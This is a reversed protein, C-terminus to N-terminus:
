QEIIAQFGKNTAYFRSPEKKFEKFVVSDNIKIGPLFLIGDETPAYGSGLATYYKSNFLHPQKNQVFVSYRKQTDTHKSEIFNTQYLIEGYPSIITLKKREMREYALKTSFINMMKTEWHSGKKLPTLVIYERDRQPYRNTSFILQGQPTQKYYLFSAQGTSFIYNLSIFNLQTYTNQSLTYRSSKIQQASQYNEDSLMEVEGSEKFKMLLNKGGMGYDREILVTGFYKSAIINRNADSFKEEVSPFYQFLWGEKASVLREKLEVERQQIRETPTAEFLAFDTDNCSILFLIFTIYLTYNRM